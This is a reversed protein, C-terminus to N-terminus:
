NKVKFTTTGFLSKVDSSNSDFTCNNAWDCIGYGYISWTGTPASSGLFAWPQVEGSLLQSSQDAYADYCYTSGGPECVIVYAQSVGSLNDSVDLKTGFSPATSLHVIPTLVKGTSVMPPATDSTAKNTLTIDLSPFLSALQTQDYTSYNGSNDVIELYELTWTGAAAYHGFLDPYEITVKGSTMPPAGYTSFYLECWGQGSTQSYFCADIAELGPTDTTFNVELSVGDPAQTVNPKGSFEGSKVVPPNSTAQHGSARWAQRLAAARAESRAHIIADQMSQGPAIAFRMPVNAWPSEIRAPDAVAKSGLLSVLGLALSLKLYNQM